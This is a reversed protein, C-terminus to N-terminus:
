AFLLPQPRHFTHAFARSMAISGPQEFEAVVDDERGQAEDQM